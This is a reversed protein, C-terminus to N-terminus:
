RRKLEPKSVVFYGDSREVLHEVSPDEHGPLVVFRDVPKVAREYEELPIMIAHACTPDDCECAFPVPEDDASGGAEEIQARRENHQQFAQENKAARSLRTGNTEGTMGGCGVAM